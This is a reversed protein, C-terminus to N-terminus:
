EKQMRNQLDEVLLTHEEIWTYMDVDNLNLMNEVDIKGTFGQLGKVYVTFFDQISSVNKKESATWVILKCMRVLMTYIDTNIKTGHDNEDDFFLGEAARLFNVVRKSQIFSFVRHADTLIFFEKGKVAAIQVLSYEQINLRLKSTGKRAGKSIIRIYGFIPSFVRLILDHEQVDRIGLVVCDTQYISYAM